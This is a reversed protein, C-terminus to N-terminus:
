DSSRFIGIRKAVDSANYEKSLMIFAKKTGNPRRFLICLTVSLYGQESVRKTVKSSPLQAKLVQSQYRALRESLIPYAPPGMQSLPMGPSISTNVKRAKVGFFNKVADKIMNKDARIDVTFVLSNKEAINRIAAETIVPNKLIQYADIMRRPYKTGKGKKSSKSQRSTAKDSTPAAAEAAKTVTLNRDAVESKQTSYVAGHQPTGVAFLGHGPEQRNISHVSSSGKRCLSSIQTRNKPIQFSLSTASVHCASNPLSFSPCSRCSSSLSHLNVATSAM